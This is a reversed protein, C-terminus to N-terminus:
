FNNLLQKEDSIIPGLNTDNLLIDVGSSISNQSKKASEATKQIEIRLIERVTVGIGNVM